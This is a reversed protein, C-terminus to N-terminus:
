VIVLACINPLVNWSPLTLSRAVSYRQSPLFFLRAFVITKGCPCGGGRPGAGAPCDLDALLIGRLALVFHGSGDYTKTIGRCRVALPADTRM